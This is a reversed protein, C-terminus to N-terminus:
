GVAESFGIPGKLFLVSETSIYVSECIPTAVIGLNFSVSFRAWSRSCFAFSSACNRASSAFCFLRGAFLVGAALHDGAREREFMHLLMRVIGERDLHALQEGRVDLRVRAM